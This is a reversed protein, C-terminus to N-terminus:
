DLRLYHTLNPPLRSTGSKNLHLGSRNLNYNGLINPSETAGLHLSLGCIAMHKKSHNPLNFHRAVPKSADKNFWKTVIRLICGQELINSHDVFGWSNQRCCEELIKNVGFIQCASVEDDSRCVLNSLAIKASSKSSAM